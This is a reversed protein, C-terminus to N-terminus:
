EEEDKRISTCANNYRCSKCGKCGTLGQKKRKGYYYGLWLFYATVAIIVAIEILPM